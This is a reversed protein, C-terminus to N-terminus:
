DYGLHKNRFIGWRDKLEDEKGGELAAGKHCNRLVEWSYGCFMFPLSFSQCKSVPLDTDPNDINPFCAFLFWTLNMLANQKGLICGQVKEEVEAFTTSSLFREQREYQQCFHEKEPCKPWVNHTHPYGLTNGDAKM